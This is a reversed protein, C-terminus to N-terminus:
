MSGRARPSPHNSSAGSPWDKAPWHRLSPLAWIFRLPHGNPDETAAASVIMERRPASSRWVRAIASPTDFLRESLGEGFFDVGERAANEEEVKLRVMPPVTDPTLSNALRVMKALDIESGAFATPHAIGSFYAGRSRVPARGRRYVMQVAPALLGTEQLFMGFELWIEPRQEGWALEDVFRGALYEASERVLAEDLEPARELLASAAADPDDQAVQYGRATAELFARVLEPQEAVLEDGAVIVPTYWDPICRGYEIFPLTQPATIALAAAWALAACGIARLRVKCRILRAFFYLGTGASMTFASEPHGALLMLTSSLAMLAGGRRVQGRILLEASVLQLPLWAAV